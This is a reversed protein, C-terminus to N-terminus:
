GCSGGELGSRYPDVLASHRGHVEVGSGFGGVFPLSIAPVRYTVEVVIRNCRAVSGEGTVPVVTAAAPDKGAATLAEFGRAQARQWALPAAMGAPTEAYTRAAERAAASAASKGDVVAWGNAILLSGVAFVLLGLPLVEVGGVQGGDNNLRSMWRPLRPGTM